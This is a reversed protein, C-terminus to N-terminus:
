PLNYITSYNKIKKIGPFSWVELFKHLNPLFHLYSFFFGWLTCHKAATIKSKNSSIVHKLYQKIM